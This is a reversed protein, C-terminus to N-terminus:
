FQCLADMYPASVFTPAIWEIYSYIGVGLIHKDKKNGDNWVSNNNSYKCFKMYWLTWGPSLKWLLLWHVSANSTTLKYIFIYSFHHLNSLKLYKYHFLFLDLAM